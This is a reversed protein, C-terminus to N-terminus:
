ADIFVSDGEVRVPFSQIPEFAPPGTAEGSKINFRGDHCSCVVEEGEIWGGESLFCEEHSCIDETCFPVGEILYLVLRRRNVIVVNLEGPKLASLQAVPESESM